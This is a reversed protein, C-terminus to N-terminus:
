RKAAADVSPRAIEPGATSWWQHLERLDGDLRLARGITRVADTTWALRAGDPQVTCRYNGSPAMDASAARWTWDDALGQSCLDEHDTRLPLLSSGFAVHMAATTPYREYRVQVPGDSCTLVALAPRPDTTAHCSPRIAAPVSARLARRARASGASGVRRSAQASTRPLTGSDRGPLAFGSTAALAGVALGGALVLTARRRLRARGPRTTAAAGRDAPPVSTSCDVLGPALAAFLDTVTAPRSEPSAALAAAFADSLCPDLDPRVETFRPLEGDPDPPWFGFADAAAASPPAGALCEWVVAAFAHVDAPAALTEDRGGPPQRHPITAEGVGTLAARERPGGLGSLVIHDPDVCAHVIGREHLADLADALPGLLRAVRAPGLRRERDLLQRLSGDAFMQFALYVVGDAEGADLLPVVNPHDFAAARRAEQVLRARAAPDDV